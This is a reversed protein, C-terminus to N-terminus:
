FQFSSSSQPQIFSMKFKSCFGCSHRRKIDRFMTAVLKISVSILDELGRAISGGFVTTNVTNM